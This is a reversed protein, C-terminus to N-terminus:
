DKPRGFTLIEIQSALVAGAEDYEGREIAEHAVQLNEQVHYDEIEFRQNGKALAIASDDLDGLTRSPVAKDSARKWVKYEMDRLDRGHGYAGDVGGWGKSGFKKALYWTADALAFLIHRFM